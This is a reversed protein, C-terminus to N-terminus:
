ALVTVERGGYGAVSGDDDHRVFYCDRDLYDTEISEIAGTADARRGEKRVAVEAPERPDCRVRVRTGTKIQGM